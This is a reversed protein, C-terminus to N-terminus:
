HRLFFNATAYLAVAVVAAVGGILLRMYLVDGTGCHLFGYRVCLNLKDAPVLAAAGVGGALAIFAQRNLLYRAM